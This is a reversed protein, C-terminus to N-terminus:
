ATEKEAQAKIEQILAPHAFYSGNSWILQRSPVVTSVFKHTKRPRWPLTFLREKWTRKVEETKTETMYKDAIFREGNILDFPMNAM